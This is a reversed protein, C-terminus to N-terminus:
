FFAHLIYPVCKGDLVVNGDAETENMKLTLPRTDVSWTHLSLSGIKDFEYVSLELYMAAMQRYVTRIIDDELDERLVPGWPPRPLEEVLDTIRTGEIWETIIFPGMAPDHNDSATGWAILKPIPIQTRARIFEMVAVERKVKAELHMVRGPAPFRVAWAQGDDFTVKHCSNFSGNTRYSYTCPQGQRHGSALKEVGKEGYHRSFHSSWEATANKRAQTVLLNDDM